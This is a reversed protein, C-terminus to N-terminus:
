KEAFVGDLIMTKAEGAVARFVEPNDRVFYLVVGALMAWVAEVKQNRRAESDQPRARRLIEVALERCAAERALLGGTLHRRDELGRVQRGSSQLIFFIIDFYDPHELAFDVFADVMASAQRRPAADKPIADRLRALLLDYGENLLEIYLAQKSPFYLYLTGPALEAAAAIAPITTAEYGQTLFLKRGAKLIEKRRKEKERERRERTGM